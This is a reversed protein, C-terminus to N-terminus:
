PFGLEAAHLQRRLEPHNVSLQRRHRRLLPRWRSPYLCRNVAVRIPDLDTRRITAGRETQAFELLLVGDSYAVRQITVPVSTWHQRRLSAFIGPLGALWSAPLLSLGQPIIRDKSQFYERAQDLANRHLGADLTFAASLVELSLVPDIGCHRMLRRVQDADSTFQSEVRWSVPESLSTCTEFWPAFWIPDLTRTGDPKCVYAQHPQLRGLAGTPCVPVQRPSLWSPTNLTLLSAEWEEEPKSIGPQVRYGMCSSAFEGAELERTRMFVTSNFNLLISRCLRQGIKDDLASLGQTAALIFCRKSRLTALQDADEAQVILPFEDALLGCLQHGASLRAQVSDFFQRRALRMFFKALDTHTLANVSVICIKGDAAVQALHFEPRDRAEFSRTAASSLLPRLVNLLCSQLNSRTRSELHRWVSAHDVAGALQPCAGPKSAQRKARELLESVAKPMPTGEIQAFLSRMFEVAETFSTRKGRSVLHSLAAAILASTTNQWYPNNGDIRDTALMLWQTVTEVDDYTRLQGFLDLAHTGGPGLIVVDKGRGVDEAMATIQGVMGDQKADLILLGIPHRLLQQIAATILTTKGCGTSGVILVHQVLDEETLAISAGAPEYCPWVILPRDLQPITVGPHPDINRHRRM